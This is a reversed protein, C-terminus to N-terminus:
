GVKAFTTAANWSGKIAVGGEVGGDVDMDFFATGFWYIGPSGSRDAYLYMKRAVGDVAATYLQPTATDFWGSYDGAADPLGAVYVENTDGMATVKTRSTKFSISWKDLFAIPEATGGSTIGAYLSGNRGAIRAM